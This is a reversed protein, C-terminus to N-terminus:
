RFDTRWDLWGDALTLRPAIRYILQNARETRLGVVSSDAGFTFDAVGDCDLDVPCYITFLDSFIGMPESLTTVLVGQAWAAPTGLGAAALLLSLLTTRM